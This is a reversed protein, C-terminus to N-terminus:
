RNGIVIDDLHIAATGDSFSCFGIWTLHSFDRSGNPLNSFRAARRSGRGGPRNPSQVELAWSGDTKGIGAEVTIVVWESAPIDCLPREGVILKGGRIWLSPGVRYQASRWDRWEHHLVSGPDMRVAFRCTSTGSTHNPSFVLHPNFAHQLGPADQIRLSRTGAHAVADTVAISDGKGEVNNDASPCAGGVPQNEFDLSLRMPPAPPPPPAFRVPPYKLAKALRVLTQDGYVGARSPDFWQFAIRAAPSGAKLRVDGKRIDRFLPDAVISGVEKGLAQWEAPTKGAFLVPKGFRWYLNRESTVNADTWTGSLPDGDDWVVINQTFTFSKHAEPRSRQIQGDMSFALINNRIVNEKGYHQHYTGTKVHHVYNDRMLIHTTGEDNYLGWGGRGYLDYSYVDHIRNGNVTTGEHNGLTYVGGMDSLVGWGIHHIHNHDIHNRQALAPGYGWTWGVSVGTYYLDSIDNHTIRNDGSQGIWVGIAGHHIRGGSRIINNDVTIHSTREPGDPRIEGEGIRIGGAGLDHLHSRTVSCDRCGRRFWIGYLGVHGIECRDFVVNRAFDAMVVAPITFEAQGDAHGEPPLSYQGYRFALGEFRIHEVLRDASGQIRVFQECVPAVVSAKRMDEGPLPRYYVRDSDAYWEGPADLAERLNEIHYRQNHGWYHFPWPAGAGAVVLADGDLGAVYHRSTEWSHYAVLVARRLRDAPISKFLALADPRPRFARRSLDAATGTAPDTGREHKGQSYFWFVNPTRARVARRGNVWLQEFRWSSGGPIPASWTGDMGRTWGTIPKGGTFVATGRRAARYVIPATQSGGDDPALDFPRQMAYTGAQILVTIPEPRPAKARLKRIANRAGELTRVPGDSHQRNPSSLRGTWRDNGQPSLHVTIQAIAPQCAIVAALVGLQSLTPM